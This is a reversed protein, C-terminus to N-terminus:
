AVREISVVEFETEAKPAQEPPEGCVPVPLHRRKEVTARWRGHDRSEVDYTDAPGDAAPRVRRPGDLWAWGVEALAAGDAAQM